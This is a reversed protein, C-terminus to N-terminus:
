RCDPHVLTEGTQSNWWIRPERFAARTADFEEPSVLHFGRRNLYWVFYSEMRYLQSEPEAVYVECREPLANIQAGLQAFRQGRDGTASTGRYAFLMGMVALALVSWRLRQAMLASLSVFRQVIEWAAYGGLPALLLYTPHLYHPLRVHSTSFAVILVAFFILALKSWSRLFAEAFAPRKHIWYAGVPVTWWWPWGYRLIVSPYAWWSWSDQYLEPRGRDTVYSRFVQEKIYRGLLSTGAAPDWSMVGWLLLPTMAAVGCVLFWLGKRRLWHADQKIAFLVYPTFAACFLLGVVGKAATSIAAGLAALVLWRWRLELGFFFEFTGIAFLIAGLSLPAELMSTAAYKTYHGFTLLLALTWAAVPWSHRRWLWTFLILLALAGPIAGIARAAGDSTGLVSLVGAGWQFTYPPHEFFVPFMVKGLPAWPHGNVLISKALGAYMAADSALGQAAFRGFFVTLIMFFAWLWREDKVTKM